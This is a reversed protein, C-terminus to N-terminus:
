YIVTPKIFINIQSKSDTKKNTGFLWKIVPVRALFPLGEGSRETSKEDLGGLLITEGNRVRIKSSFTKTQAGPPAQPSIRNTFNSQTFDINLTIQEDGSVFPKISISLDANIPKFVVGQSLAPNQAGIFSNNTEAYFTTEGLSLSAESGNMTALKPTSKKKIIGNSELATISAYFNPSLNGLNIFGPGAFSRLLNNITKSNMTTELGSSSQNYSGTTSEPVGEGGLAMKIGAEVNFDKNVEVIMLDILVVPVPLDIERLFVKIEEIRTYSGSIILGNLDPFEKIDVDKTLESPIVEQISEVTRNELTVLETTRLREQNREGILYIDESVKFTYKSGSFVYSLFDDFTANEVYLTAPEKPTSFMYYHEGLEYAVAMVIEAISVDEARITVTGNQVALELGTVEPRSYETIQNTNKGFQASSNASAQETSIEELVFFNGDTERMQLGNAFAFNDLADDFPRNKIFGSVLKDELGPAIVVNRPSIDTIRKAVNFLSDGKVNISLFDTGDNYDIDLPARIKPEEDAPPPTYASFALIAGTFDITLGFEKCLFIFVDKVPANSFNNTVKYNLSQSISVNLDNATAVARVFEQISANSLSIQVPENLGPYTQSLSDLTQEIQALPPATRNAIQGNLQLVSCALILIIFISNRM